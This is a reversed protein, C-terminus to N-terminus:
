NPEESEAEVPVQDLDVVPQFSFSRTNGRGSDLVITATHDGVLPSGVPISTCTVYKVPHFDEEAVFNQMMHETGDPGHVSLTAILHGSAIEAHTDVLEFHIRDDASAYYPDTSFYIVMAGQDDPTVGGGGHGGGGGHPNTRNVGAAVQQGHLAGWTQNGVVGDPTCGNASQFAVVAAETRPGFLGDIAGPDQGNVQLMGQLYTVWGSAPESDSDHRYLTPFGTTDVDSMPV